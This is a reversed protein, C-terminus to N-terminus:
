RLTKNHDRDDTDYGVILINDSTGLIIPLGKFIEDIKHQFMDGM